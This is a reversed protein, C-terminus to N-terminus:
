AVSRLEYVPSDHHTNRGTTDGSPEKDAPKLLGESKARKYILGIHKPEIRGRIIPRMADQHVHTGSVDCRPRRCTTSTVAVRALADTFVVWESMEQCGCFDPHHVPAYGFGCRDAFVELGLTSM